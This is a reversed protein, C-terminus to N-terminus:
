TIMKAIFLNDIFFKIIFFEMQMRCPYAEGQGWDAAAAKFVRGHRIFDEAKERTIEELTFTPPESGAPGGPWYELDAQPARSTRSMLLFASVVGLMANCRM